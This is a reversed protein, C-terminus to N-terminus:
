VRYREPLVDHGRRYQERRYCRRCFGHALHPRDTTGCALCAPREPHWGGRRPTPVYDRKFAYADYCRRCRGLAFYPRDTAGCDGCACWDPPRRSWGPLPTPAPTGDDPFNTRAYEGHFERAKADYARAAEEATAFTGLRLRQGRFAIRAHWTGIRSSEVGKYGSKSSVRVASNANNQSRTALRLNRRRNNLGDGDIHDVDIGKPADLLFRHLPVLGNRTRFAAYAKTDNVVAFCRHAAVREADEPSVFTVFGFTLPIAVADDTSDNAPM